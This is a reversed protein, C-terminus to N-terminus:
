VDDRDEDWVDDTVGRRVAEDPSVGLTARVGGGVWGAIYAAQRQRVHEHFHVHDCCSDPGLNLMSISDGIVFIRM